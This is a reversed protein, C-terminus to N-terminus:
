PLEDAVQLALRTKGTGGAGTLVVLRSSRLLQKVEAIERTRGVYSTVQAPLNTRRVAEQDTASPGPPKLLRYEAAAAAAGARSAVGLKSFLQKNYWKVTEPSLALRQSIERNSLGETILRLIELERERFREMWSPPGPRSM